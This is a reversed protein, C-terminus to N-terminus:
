QTSKGFQTHPDSRQRKIKVILLAAFTTAIALSVIASPTLEPVADDVTEDIVEVKVLWKVWYVSDTMLGEPGVIALRLPGGDSASISADNFYYAVIPVLPQSHPVLEGTSNYTVFDGSIQAYTLNMSYSDEAVVRVVSTNTLGGVM